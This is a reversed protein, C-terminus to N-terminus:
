LQTLNDSRELKISEFGEKAKLETYFTDKSHGTSLTLFFEYRDGRSRSSVSLMRYDQCKEKLFDHMTKESTETLLLFGLSFEQNLQKSGYPSFYLIGAIMCYVLTGAIAISYGYVGSAIGVSLAAFIFIINRPNEIRLRFRVIAIAGMIGFGAAVNNGVAMIVMCTVISSLIMAQIFNRSLATGQSTLHYTFSIASSLVFSLLISFLAVEFSPFEYFDGDTLVDFM